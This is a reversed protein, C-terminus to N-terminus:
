GCKQLRPYSLRQPVPSPCKVGGSVTGLVRGSVRRFSEVGTGLTPLPPCFHCIYSGLQRGSMEAVFRGIAKGSNPWRRRARWIDPFKGRLARYTSGVLPLIVTTFKAETAVQGARELLAKKGGAAVSEVTM